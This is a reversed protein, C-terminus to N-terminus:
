KLNKWLRPTINEMGKFGKDLKDIKYLRQNTNPSTLPGLEEIYRGIKIYDLDNEYIPLVSSGTYWGTKLHPFIEHIWKSRPIVDKIDGGMFCVCTIGTNRKIIQYLMVPTLEMGVDKWLHPSHCGECHYPCNSINIALTIEDPIESLVVEYETFKM